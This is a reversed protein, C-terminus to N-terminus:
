VACTRRPSGDDEDILDIVDAECEGDSVMVVDPKSSSSGSGAGAGAGASAAAGQPQANGTRRRKTRRTSPDATTSRTQKGRGNAVGHAM